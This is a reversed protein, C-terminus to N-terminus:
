LKLRSVAGKLGYVASKIGEVQGCIETVAQFKLIDMYHLLLSKLIFEERLARLEPIIEQGISPLIIPELYIVRTRLEKLPISEYAVAYKSNSECLLEFKRKLDLIEEEPFPTKRGARRKIFDALVCQFSLVATDSRVDDSLKKISERMEKLDKLMKELTLNMDNIKEREEPPIEQLLQLDRTELYTCIRKELIGFGCILTLMKEQEEVEMRDYEEQPLVFNQKLLLIIPHLADQVLTYVTLKGEETEIAKEDELRSAIQFSIELYEALKNEIEKDSVPEPSCSEVIGM